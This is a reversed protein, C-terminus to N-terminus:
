DATHDIPISIRHTAAEDGQGVYLQGAENLAFVTCTIDNWGILVGDRTVHNIDLGLETLLERVRQIPISSPIGPVNMRSGM